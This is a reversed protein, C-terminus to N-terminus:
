RAAEPGAEGRVNDRMAVKALVMCVPVMWVPAATFSLARVMEEITPEVGKLLVQPAPAEVVQLTWERGPEMNALLLVCFSTVDLTAISPIKVEDM